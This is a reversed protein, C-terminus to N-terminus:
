IRPEFLRVLNTETCKRGTVPCMGEKKVYELICKYCFVYGSISATPNVRPDQCLPCLTPPLNKLREAIMTNTKGEPFFPTAPLPPPPTVKAKNSGGPFRQRSEQQEQRQQETDEAEHQMDQQISQVRAVFSLAVMSSIVVAALKQIRSPKGQMINWFSDSIVTNIGQVNKIGVEASEGSSVAVGTNEQQQQQQQQQQDEQTVRRLISNLYRSYPDFFVSWGMLYRWQYLWFTAKTTMRVLPWAVQVLTRLKQKTATSLHSLSSIRRVLATAVTDAREELYPGLALLFALRISNQKSMPQLPRRQSNGDDAVPVVQVRKGGYLSEAISASSSSLLSRRELWYVVLFRLEPGFPELIQTRINRCTHFSVNRLFGQIARFFRLVSSSYPRSDNGRQNQLSQEMRILREVLFQTAARLTQHGSRRCEEIMKCELFSPLTSTPVITSEEAILAGITTPIMPNVRPPSEVQLPTTTSM